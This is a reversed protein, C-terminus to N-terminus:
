LENIDNKTYNGVFKFELFVDIPIPANDNLVKVMHWGGMDIKKTIVTSVRIRDPQVKNVFYVNGNIENHYIGKIENQDKAKM